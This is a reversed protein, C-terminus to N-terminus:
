RIDEIKSLIEIWNIDDDFRLDSFDMDVPEYVYTYYKNRQEKNCATITCSIRQNGFDKGVTFTNFKRAILEIKEDISDIWGKINKLDRSSHFTTKFNHFFRIFAQVADNRNKFLYSRECDGCKLGFEKDEFGFDGDTEINIQVAYM